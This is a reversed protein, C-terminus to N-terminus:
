SDLAEADLAGKSVIEWDPHEVEGTRSRSIGDVWLSRVGELAPHPQILEVDWNPDAFDHTTWNIFQGDDTQTVRVLAPPDCIVDVYDNGRYGMVLKARLIKDHHEQLDRRCSKEISDDQLNRNDPHLELQHVNESIETLMKATGSVHRELNTVQTRIEQIIGKDSQGERMLDQILSLLEVQTESDIKEEGDAISRKLPEIMSARGTSIAVAVASPVKRTTM